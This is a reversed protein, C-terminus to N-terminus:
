IDNTSNISADKAEKIKNEHWALEEGLELLKNLNTTEAMEKKLQEIREENTM